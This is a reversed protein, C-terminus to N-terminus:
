MEFFLFFCFMTNYMWILLHHINWSLIQFIIYSLKPLVRQSLGNIISKCISKVRLSGFFFVLLEGEGEGVREPEIM